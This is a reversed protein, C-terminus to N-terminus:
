HYVLSGLQRDIRRILGLVAKGCLVQFLVQALVPGLDVWPIATMISGGGTSGSGLNATSGGSASPWIWIVAV